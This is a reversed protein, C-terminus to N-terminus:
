APEGDTGRAYDDRGSLHRVLALHLGRAMPLNGIEVPRTISGMRWLHKAQFALAPHLVERRPQPANGSLDLVHGTPNGRPAPVFAVSAWNDLVTPPLLPRTDRGGGALKPVDKVAYRFVLIDIAAGLTRGGPDYHSLGLGDRLADEWGAPGTSGAGVVEEFDDLFAAYVPRGDINRAWTALVNNLLRISEPDRAGLAQAAWGKLRDSSVEGKHAIFEVKEVRILHRRLDNALFPSAPDMSLFTEPCSIPDAPDFFAPLGDSAPPLFVREELYQDHIGLWDKVTAHGAMGGIEGYSVVRPDTIGEDLLFNRAVFAPEPETSRGTASLFSM